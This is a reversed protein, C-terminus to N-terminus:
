PTVLFFFWNNTHPHSLFIRGEQDGNTMVWCAEHHWNTIMPVYKEIYGECEHYIRISECQELGMLILM